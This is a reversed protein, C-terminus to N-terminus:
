EITARKDFKVLLSVGAFLPVVDEYDSELVWTKGERGIKITNIPPYDISDINYRKDISTRIATINIQEDGKYEAAVQTLARSVKMYNLYLPTLRIGAYAVVAVPVLLFLWGIFTIGKQHQM